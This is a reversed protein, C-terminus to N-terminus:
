AGREERNQLAQKQVASLARDLPGSSPQSSLTKTTAVPVIKTGSGTTGTRDIRFKQTAPRPTAAIEPDAVKTQGRVEAVNPSHPRPLAHRQDMRITKPPQPRGHFQMPSALPVQEEALPLQNDIIADLLERRQPQPNRAVPQRPRPQTAAVASSQDASQTRRRLSLSFGILALLGVAATIIPPWVSWRTGAKDAVAEAEDLDAATLTADQSDHDKALHIHRRKSPANLLSPETIQNDDDLTPDGSEPAPANDRAIDTTPVPVDGPALTSGEAPPALTMQSDRAIRDQIVGSRRPTGRVGNTRKSTTSDESPPPPVEAFEPSEEVSPQSVPQSTQPLPTSDSWTGVAPQSKPSQTVDPTINRRPAYPQSDDGSPQAQTDAERRLKFPEPLTALREAKVSNPPFILVTESALTTDPRPQSNGRQGPPAIIHIQSALSQDQRMISLIGLVTANESRLKLVVPRDILNVFGIQVAEASSRKADAGYRASQTLQADAVVLDGPMLEFRTAGSYSTMQGPRGNRIIRFQGSADKALGGINQLLDSLLTGQRDIEYVGPRAIQGLLGVYPQQSTEIAWSVKPKVRNAGTMQPPPGYPSWAPASNQGVSNPGMPMPGNPGFQRPDFANSDFAGNPGFPNANPLQGSQSSSAGFPMQGAPNQGFPSQSLPAQGSPSQGNGGFLPNNAITPPQNIPPRMGSGNFGDPSLGGPLPGATMLPFSDGSAPYGNPSRQWMGLAPGFEAPSQNIAGSTQFGGGVWADPQHIHRTNIDDSLPPFQFASAATGLSAGGVGCLVAILRFRRHSSM